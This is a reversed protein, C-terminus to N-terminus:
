QLTRSSMYEDNADYRTPTEVARLPEQHEAVRSQHARAIGTNQDGREELRDLRAMIRDLQRALMAIGADTSEEVPAENVVTAMNQKDMNHSEGKPPAM